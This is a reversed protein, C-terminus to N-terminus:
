PLRRWIGLLIRRFPSFVRWFVSYSRWVFGNVDYRKGKRIVATMLGMVDDVTCYERGKLNGDGWLKLKDDRRDVLRHLVFSGTSVKALVVDGPKLATPDFPGLEAQDRMHVMFPSMSVGKVTLTVTHGAAILRQVEPLLVDNRVVQTREAM